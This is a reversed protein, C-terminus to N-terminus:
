KKGEKKRNCARCTAGDEVFHIAGQSNCLAKGDADKLHTIHMYLDNFGKKTEDNM